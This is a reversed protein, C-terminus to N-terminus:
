KNFGNPEKLDYGLSQITQTPSTRSQDNKRYNATSVKNRQLLRNPLALPEVPPKRTATKHITKRM